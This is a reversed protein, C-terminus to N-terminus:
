GNDEADRHLAYRLNMVREPLASAGVELLWGEIGWRLSAEEAPTM